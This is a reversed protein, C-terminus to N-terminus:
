LRFLELQLDGLMQEHDVGFLRKLDHLADALEADAKGDVVEAGSEGVHAVDRAEGDVLEDPLARMVLGMAAQSLHKGAASIVEDSAGSPFVALRPSRARAATAKPKPKVKARPQATLKAKPTAKRQAM